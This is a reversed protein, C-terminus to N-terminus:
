NNSHPSDWQKSQATEKFLIADILFNGTRSFDLTKYCHVSVGSIMGKRWGTSDLVTEWVRTKLIM